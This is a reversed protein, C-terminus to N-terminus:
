PRRPPAPTPAAPTGPHIPHGQLLLTFHLHDGGAMGTSGSRGITQDKEVTDGEKIDFSSLHAYLSQLGMGHDLIVCNGYIGLYNAFLVKGRNAAKVEAAATKALDYGLHVQRDIEKGGYFYTRYDAFGSEVQSNALQQFAGHWLVQPSTKSAFAAITDANQRRLDGNVKLFAPVLEAGKQQSVDLRLDPTQDVIAPVVRQLFADNIEIRSQRFARPFVKYDLQARAVNEAEDKAYLEIPANVDQNYLLAFFAVKLSPDTLTPSIGSAAYGPYTIEGVRVGSEINPPTVRYVVMEAGGHKIFHHISAVSLRPPDFRLQLDRAVETERRRLGFLVKRSATVVLRASGAKLDPISRRGFPRTIRMTDATEQKVTAGGQDALSFVPITKGQQEVRATVTEFRGEPTSVTFDLTSALGAAKVPQTITIQPGPLWGAGFYGAGVILASGLIALLIFRRV